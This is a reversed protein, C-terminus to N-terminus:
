FRRTLSFLAIGLLASLLCLGMVGAFAWSREAYPLGVNMGFMSVILTPIMLIITIKTLSKMVVNLNNSIVSAFADMLGNLINTYIGAMNIAQANDILVDEFLEKQEENLPKLHKSKRLRKFMFHNSRLSTTFYVLSKEQNLLRILEENKQSQKLEAEIKNTQSDIEKLFRSYKLVTRMFIQLIFKKRDAPNVNKVKHGVFDSIVTNEKSCVTIMLPGKLIIGLPRTLYPIENDEVEEEDNAIPIRLIISLVDDEMEFRAREDPDLAGTLTEMPIGYTEEISHLENHTPGSLNIWIDAAAAPLTSAPPSEAPRSSPAGNGTPNAETPLPHQALKAGQLQYVSIM